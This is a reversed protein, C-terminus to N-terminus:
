IVFLEFSNDLKIKYDLKIYYWKKKILIIHNKKFIFIIGHKYKTNRAHKRNFLLYLEIYHLKVILYNTCTIFSNSLFSIKIFKGFYYYDM